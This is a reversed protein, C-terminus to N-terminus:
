RRVVYPSFVYHPAGAPYPPQNQLGAYRPEIGRHEVVGTKPTYCLPCHQRRMFAQDRNLESCAWWFRM